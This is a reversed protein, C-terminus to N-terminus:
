ENCLCCSPGKNFADLAVHISGPFSNFVCHKSLFVLFMFLGWGMNMEAKANKVIAKSRQNLNQEKTLKEIGKFKRREKRRRMPLAFWQLKDGIQYLQDLSLLLFVNVGHCYKRLEM